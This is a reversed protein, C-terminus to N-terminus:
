PPVRRIREVIEIGKPTRPDANYPTIANCLVPAAVVTKGKSGSVSPHSTDVEMNSTELVSSDPAGAADHVKDNGLDEDDADDGKRRWFYPVFSPDPVFTAPERRFFLDYLKLKVACTVALVPGSCDVQKELSSPKLM